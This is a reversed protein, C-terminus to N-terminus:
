KEYKAHIFIGYFIHAIGFGLAWILLSYEIFYASVLGFVIQVLGLGKIDEYTYKGAIFLSMGYFLLTVPILLGTLEHYVLILALIGGTVLPVGMNVLLRRSTPNWLKENRKVARRKSFYVATIVSLALVVLALLIIKTIYGTIAYSEYAMTDPNFGLVQYAIFAGAVAYIGAMIGAWGSLSLFKTTREMMSRIDTIDKIYDKEQSM